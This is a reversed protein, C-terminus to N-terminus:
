IKDLGLSWFLGRNVKVRLELKKSKSSSKGVSTEVEVLEEEFFVGGKNKPIPKTASKCPFIVASVM